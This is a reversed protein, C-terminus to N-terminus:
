PSARPRLIARVPAADGGIVKLPLCVRDYPDPDVASLDLTEVVVINRILLARHVSGDGSPNEVSFGDVGILKV